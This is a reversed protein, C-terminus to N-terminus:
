AKNYLVISTNTGSVSPMVEKLTNSDLIKFFQAVYGEDNDEDIIAQSLKFAQSITPIYAVKGGWVSHLQIRDNFNKVGLVILIYM